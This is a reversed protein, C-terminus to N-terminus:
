GLVSFVSRLFGVGAEIDALRNNGSEREITLWGGRYEIEELAELYSMWDVDGHGLPVEQAARSTSARRCDRAHTHVVKEALDRASQVPDFGHLLLNAPDLNAALSGTDFSRLYAALVSGAELGTELALTTGIRDGHGALNSLADRMLRGREVDAEAPVQGAEIVVIGPGLDYALSLVKRIHDLRRQQDEAVDLGRRLPCGLATLELNYGRLLNRFERRGTQSLSDPALDGRADIQVGGVSLRSSEALAKRLPLALSELRVGIKFHKM